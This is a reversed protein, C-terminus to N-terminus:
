AVVSSLFLEHHNICHWFLFPSVHMDKKICICDIIGILGLTRTFVHKSVIIDIRM